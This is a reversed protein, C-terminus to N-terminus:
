LGCVFIGSLGLSCIGLKLSASPQLLFLYFDETFIMSIKTFVKVMPVCQLSRGLVNSTAWPFSLIAPSIRGAMEKCYGHVTCPLIGIFGACAQRKTAQLIHPILVCLDLYLYTHACESVSM